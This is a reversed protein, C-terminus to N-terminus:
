ERLGQLLVIDNTETARVIALRTGDRSRAFTSISLASDTFATVQRPADGGLSVAWINTENADVYFVERGDPSWRPVGGFNVPLGYEGRNSCSPLDCVVLPFRNQSGTVFLLRRGDPSVDLSGLSAFTSAVQTPEGGDIPVVWPSLVGSRLSLFYVHRDDASIIPVLTSGEVLQVPQQGRDVKWLGEAGRLFVITEGDATGVGNHANAVMELPSGGAPPITVIVSERSAATTYLVRQGAWSVSSLPALFLSSPVIEAANTGDANSVWLATRRERRATVLSGRTADLDVGLYSSLDNTFPSVTGDPYSMRWLQTRQGVVAPQSLVLAAPGLWGLGQPFVHGQSDLFTERGRAVDVFVVRTTGAPQIEWLAITSGDPSWAPRTASGLTFLSVFFSPGQRTAIVREAEAEADAVVLASMNSAADVRVYAMQRGDPSWAVASWVNEALRRATGGLFPVRWLTPSALREGGVYDVYNGDPTVTPLGVFFGSEPPVIPVNSATAVQRVWLSTADGDTQTYVVYRGDPSIAPMGANGSTTLQSIQYRAPATADTAPASPPVRSFVFYVGGAIALAVALASGIVIGPHRRAIAAVVQADSSSSHEAVKADLAPARTTTATQAARSSDYDRQLRKLDARMEAASQYRVDREKELAKGILRLLEPPLDPNLTIANTPTSSLIEHSVVAATPGRFPLVGTALEYLVVGFSFLDSRGDVAEGRVQEPSMYAVTGLTTGPVTLDADAFMTPLVSGGAPVAQELKALGFDLLKTHGHSTIFINGPKLDRHVVGARHAADLAAAVDLAITLVDNLPLRGSAITDKLSRGDLREMAIFPQGEHNGIEYITCISPHNLASAARAERQFRAVAAADQVFGEPLFKLAVKRGLTLDDALYVVGMGGGGLVSGIRYRSVVEGAAFALMRAM